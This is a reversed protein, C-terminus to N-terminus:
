QLVLAKFFFYDCLVSQFVKIQLINHTFLNLKEALKELHITLKQLKDLDVFLFYSRNNNKIFCSIM